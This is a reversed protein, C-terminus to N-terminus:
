QRYVGGPIDTFIQLSIEYGHGERIVMGVSGQPKRCPGHVEPLM